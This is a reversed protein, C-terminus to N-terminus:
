SHKNGVRDVINLILLPNVRSLSIGNYTFSKDHYRRKLFQNVEISGISGSKRFLRALLNAKM